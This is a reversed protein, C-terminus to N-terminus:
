DQKNREAITAGTATPEAGDSELQKKMREFRAHADLYALYYARAREGIKEIVRRELEAFEESRAPFGTLEFRQM